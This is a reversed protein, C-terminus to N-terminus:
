IPAAERWVRVIAGPKGWLYMNQGTAISFARDIGYQMVGGLYDPDPATASSAWGIFGDGTRPTVTVHGAGAVALWEGTMTINLEEM